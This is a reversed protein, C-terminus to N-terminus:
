PTGRTTAGLWARMTGALGLVSANDLVDGEVDFGIFRESLCDLALSLGPQAMDLEPLPLPLESLSAHGCSVAVRCDM